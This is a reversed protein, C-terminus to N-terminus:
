VTTTKSGPRDSRTRWNRRPAISNGACTSSMTSGIASGTRATQRMQELETRVAHMEKSISTDIRAQVDTEVENLLIGLATATDSM